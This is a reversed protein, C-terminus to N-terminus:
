KAKKEERIALILFFFNTLARKSVIFVCCTIIKESKWSVSIIINMAIVISSSIYEYNAITNINEFHRCM